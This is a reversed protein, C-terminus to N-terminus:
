LGSVRLRKDTTTPSHGILVQSSFLCDVSQPLDTGGSDHFRAAGIGPTKAGNRLPLARRAYLMVLGNYIDGALM